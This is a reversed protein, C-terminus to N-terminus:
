KKQREFERCFDLHDDIPPTMDIKHLSTLCASIRSKLDFKEDPKELCLSGEYFDIIELLSPQKPLENSKKLDEFKNDPQQQNPKNKTKAKKPKSHKSKVKKNKVTIKKTNNNKPLSSGDSNIGDEKNM